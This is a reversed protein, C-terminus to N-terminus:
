ELKSYIGVTVYTPHFISLYTLLNAFGKGIVSFVITISQTDDENDHPTTNIRYVSIGFTSLASFLSALAENHTDSLRVELYRDDDPLIEPISFHKSVLAYRMDATGDPGFVSSVSNIKLDSSYLIASISPIRVGGKEELPLLCYECKEEIVARTASRLDPAYFVRPDKFDQSFVDFAEDALRNKVYVFTEDGVGERLFDSEGVNVGLLSLSSLLSEVFYARDVFEVAGFYSLYSNILNATDSSIKSSFGEDVFFLAEIIEYINLGESHLDSFERAIREALISIEIARRECLPLEKESLKYLNDRSVALSLFDNDKFM